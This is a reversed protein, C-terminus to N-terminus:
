KPEDEQSAEIKRINPYRNSKEYKSFKWDYNRWICKWDEEEKGESIGIIHLNAHNINDWLDRENKKMQSETQQGPQTIEMIRDESDSIAEEANNMRSNFAKLEAKSNALSNELKDQSRRITELEKTIQM